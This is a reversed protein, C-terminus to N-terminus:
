QEGHDKKPLTGETSTVVRNDDNITSAKKIVRDWRDEFEAMTNRIKQGMLVYNKIFMKHDFSGNSRYAQDLPEQIITRTFETSYDTVYPISARHLDACCHAAIYTARLRKNFIAQNMRVHLIAGLDGNENYGAHFESCSTEPQERNVAAYCYPTVAQRKLSNDVTKTDIIIVRDQGYNPVDCCLLIIYDIRRASKKIIDVMEDFLPIVHDSEFSLKKGDFIFMHRFQSHIEILFALKCPTGIRHKKAISALKDVYVDARNLHKKYAYQFSDLFDRYCIRGTDNAREIIIRKLEDQAEQPINDTERVVDAYKEILRREKNRIKQYSSNRKNVLDKKFIPMGDCQFHEIGLVYDYNDHKCILVFDPRESNGDIVTGCAIEKIFQKSKGRHHKQADILKQLCYLEGQKKSNVKEM